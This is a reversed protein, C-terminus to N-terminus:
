FLWDMFRPDHPQRVWHEAGYQSGRARAFTGYILELDAQPVVPRRDNNYHSGITSFEGVAMHLWPFQRYLIDRARAMEVTEAIRQGTKDEAPYSGRASGQGDNLLHDMLAAWGDRGCAPFLRGTAVSLLQAFSFYRGTDMM